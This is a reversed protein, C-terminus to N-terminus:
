AWIEAAVQGVLELKRRQDAQTVLNGEIQSAFGCQPGLGLQELPFIRAAEKVRERVVTPEELAPRKTSILGLIVERDHPVVSLPEFGGSRDDDFELLFRNFQSRNFVRQIPEYGGRALYHSRHNGRCIHLGFTVGSHGAIIANDMEICRDILKDPDNGRARYGERIEPDLLAAYQPADLQVYTCGLRILEDIEARLIDVVDALYADQTAYAGSSVAPDYFAATQQASPMTVKAPHDTIARLFTWEEGCLSRKFRLKDVVVPRKLKVTDGADDRFAIEWGGFKDFGAVSDILHGYFAYRRLEGDTIVGIGASEQLQIGERVARDEVAKFAAVDISGSAFASRADMLWSPRLLSGVVETHNLTQTV